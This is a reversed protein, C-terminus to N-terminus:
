PSTIGRVDRHLWAGTILNQLHMRPMASATFVRAAPLAATGPVPAPATGKLVTMGDAAGAADAATVPITVAVALQDASAGADPLNPTTM